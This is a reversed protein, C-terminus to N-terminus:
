RCPKTPMLELSTLRGSLTFDSYDLTLARSIGNEYLEFSIVYVPEQEGSREKDSSLADFYSITVPWRTLTGLVPVRASADDPANRGPPIPKGIVTLTHYLRQGNESGDYVPFALITRGARAAEIIRRIHETPFVAGAPVSLTKRQPKELTVTIAAPTRDAHGDVAVTEQENLLNQSNFRFKKARGDEWTTSRLDNLVPESDGSALKSVQRFQLTYGECANGSFDYLIRGSVADINRTGRSKVLDLDYIARHPALVVAAPSAPASSAAVALALVAAAAPVIPHPCASPNM